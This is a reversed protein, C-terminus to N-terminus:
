DWFSPVTWGIPCLGRSDTVAWFNYLQGTVDAHEPDDCFEIRMGKAEAKRWAYYHTGCPCYFISDGNAYRPSCLNEAFWCQDGIEVVEYVHGSYAPPYVRHNM